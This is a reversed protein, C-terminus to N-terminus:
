FLAVAPVAPIPGAPLPHRAGAGPRKREDGPHPRGCPGVCRDAESSCGSRATAATVPRRRRRPHRCVSTGGPPPPPWGGEPTRTLLGCQILFPEYVDEVTETPESVAIALTSLGVPGGGFRECLAALIARDVKDLGLEDVGFLALGAKAVDLDIVGGACRPTTACRRLLRNAIRAYGPGAPWRSRAEPAIAM